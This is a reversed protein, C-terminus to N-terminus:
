RIAILRAHLKTAGSDIRVWQNLPTFKAGHVADVLMAAACAAPPM